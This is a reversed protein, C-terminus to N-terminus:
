GTPQPACPSADGPAPPPAAPASSGPAVQAALRRALERLKGVGRGQLGQEVLLRDVRAREDADLHSVESVLTSVQYASVAGAQFLGRVSDLGDHLDRAVRVRKRAETISVRCAPSIQGAISREIRGPEIVGADVLHAAEARAFARVWEAQAAELASKAQEFLALGDILEARTLSESPRNAPHEVAIRVLGPGLLTSAEPDLCPEAGRSPPDAVSTM